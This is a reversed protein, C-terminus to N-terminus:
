EKFVSSHWGVKGDGPGAWSLISTLKLMLSPCLHVPVVSLSVSVSRSINVTSHSLHSDGGLSERTADQTFCYNFLCQSLSLILPRPCSALCITPPM